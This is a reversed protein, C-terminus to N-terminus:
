VLRYQVRVTATGTGAAFVATANSVYLGIGLIPASAVASLSAPPRTSYVTATANTVVTAAFTTAQVSTGAGNATDAYQVAVVGGGTFQTATGRVIFEVSDVVIAKNPVAPVVLVPTTYMAIIQAATLQVEATFPYGKVEEALSPITNSM